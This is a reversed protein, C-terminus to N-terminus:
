IKKLDMVKLQLSKTNNWSDSILECALDVRDGAKLEPNTKGLGFGICSLKSDLNDSKVEFKLHKSGNGVLRLNIIELGKLLLIAPENGKGFPEFRLIDKFLEWGIKKAEVEMDIPLVPVLEKGELKKRTVANLRKKLEEFKDNDLELGAASVHGGFENLIDSCETIAEILNFGPIARASGRSKEPTIKFIFTPRCYRDAIKGAVLGVVGASWKEDAEFIVPNEDSPPNKKIREEIELVIDNTIKQRQRNQEDIKQALIAAKEKEKELLLKLALSAHDVRGAANLRPGLIFGLAYADLNTILNEQEFTPNLKATKMLEKLGVRQTQALVILGYRVLIRNEGLLPMCDAVTSLAVLDLLWKEWGKQAAEEGKLLAQALKFAVGTGSLEKFPYKDEKQWPDVITKAKPIKKGVQHHDVVIVDLGLSNALEIEEFDTIGCDVTLLLKTGKEAIEKVARLNLGYGENLRDPLYIDQDLIDAGFKELVTKLLVAGCVGDADYDGFIAIKKKEKLAKKIISVAKKMGLMLFPDHLDQDYSPNFFEEIDEKTRLGRNYLLQKIAPSFEPFKQLFDEPALPKIQWDM